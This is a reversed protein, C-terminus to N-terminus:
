LVCCTYLQFLSVIAVYFLFELIILSLCLYCCLKSDNDNIQIASYHYPLAVDTRPSSSLVQLSLGVYETEELRVDDYIVQIYCVMRQLEEIATTQLRISGRQYDHEGGNAPNLM